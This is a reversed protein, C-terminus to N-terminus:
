SEMEPPLEHGSSVDMPEVHVYYVSMCTPLVGLCILNLFFFKFLMSSKEERDGM